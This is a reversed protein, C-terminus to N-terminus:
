VCIFDGYFYASVILGNIKSITTYKVTKMSNAKTGAMTWQWPTGGNNRNNSEIIRMNIAQNSSTRWATHVFSM